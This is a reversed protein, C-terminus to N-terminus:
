CSFEVFTARLEANTHRSDFTDMIYLILHALQVKCLAMHTLHSCQNGKNGNGILNQWQGDVLNDSFTDVSTSKSQATIATSYITPLDFPNRCAATGDPANRSGLINM